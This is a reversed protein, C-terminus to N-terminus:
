NSQHQTKDRVSGAGLVLVVVPGVAVVVVVVVVMIVVRSSGSNRSSSSGSSRSSATVRVKSKKALASLPLDDGPLPTAPDTPMDFVYITTELKTRPLFCHMCLVNEADILQQINEDLELIPENFRDCFECNFSFTQM